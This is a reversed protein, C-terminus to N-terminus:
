THRKSGVTLDLQDQNSTQRSKSSKGSKSSKSSQQSNEDSVLNPQRLVLIIVISSLINTIDGSIRGIWFNIVTVAMNQIVYNAAFWLIQSTGMTIM